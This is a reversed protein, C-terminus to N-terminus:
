GLMIASLKSDIQDKVTINSEMVSKIGIENETATATEDGYLDDIMLKIAEFINTM